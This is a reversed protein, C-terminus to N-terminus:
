ATPTSQKQKSTCTCRSRADTLTQVEKQLDKIYDVALDLMDATNAQKDMNPFLEQLKRMRESIRTRRVREAISRPHTAFGRKARIKCPIADQQFQLYKEVAAMEASTKPLSLHHALSSSYHKSDGNQTELGNMSSFMKLDGDRNRKLSTFTSGNWPDSPISPHSGKNTENGNGFQGNKPSGTGISGNGTEAIQPGFRSFNMHNSLRTSSLGTEMNARNSAQFTGVNRTAAFGNEANLHALFGAPSSSQRVLNSCNGSSAKLNEMAMSSIGRFSGHGEMSAGPGNSVSAHNPLDRPAPACYAERSGGGAGAAASTSYGNQQPVPEVMEVKMPYQSLDRSDSVFRSFFTDSEPSSPQPDLFEECGNEGVGSGGGGGDDNGDLLTAFFSSPASRYRTLGTNNNSQQTNQPALHNQYLDSNM